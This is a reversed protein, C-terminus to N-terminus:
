ATAELLWAIAQETPLDIPQIGSVDLFRQENRTLEGSLVAYAPGGSRKIIQRAFSRQIQDYFRCGLFVFGRGSRRQQVVPPIPTQIDIEALVEVYDADSVLVNGAPWVAGLPKYVVTNWTDAAEDPVETGEATFTRFFRDRDPLNARSIGQVQSWGTGGALATAMANDYWTDVVMPPRLRAILRHLPTPDVTPAFITAFLGDLVSRHRHTEIYQAAGWLNERVVGPVPVQSVLARCLARTTIPVPADAPLVEPGLYPLLSGESLGAAIRGILQRPM